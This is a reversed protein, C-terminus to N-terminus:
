NLERMYWNRVVLPMRIGGREIEVARSRRLRQRQELMCTESADHDVAWPANERVHIEGRFRGAPSGRDAQYQCMPGSDDGRRYGGALKCSKITEALSTERQSHKGTKITAASM